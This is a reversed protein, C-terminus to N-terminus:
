NIVRILLTKERGTDVHVVRVENNFQNVFLVTDSKPPRYIMKTLIKFLM